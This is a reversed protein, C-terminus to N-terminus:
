AMLCDNAVECLFPSMQNPRSVSVCAVEQNDCKPPVDVLVTRYITAVVANSSTGDLLAASFSLRRGSEYSASGISSLDVSLEWGGDESATAYQDLLLGTALGEWSWTVDVNSPDV